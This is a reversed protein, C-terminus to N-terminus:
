SVEERAAKVDASTMESGDVKSLIAVFGTHRGRGCALAQRDRARYVIPNGGRVDAAIGIARLARLQSPSMDSRLKITVNKM